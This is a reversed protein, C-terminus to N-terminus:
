RTQRTRTPHQSGLLHDHIETLKQQLLRLDQDLLRQRIFDSLNRVGLQDAQERLHEAERRTVRFEIRYTKVM